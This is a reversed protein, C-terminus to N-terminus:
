AKQRPSKSPVILVPIDSQRLVNRVVRGAIARTWQARRRMGMVILDCAKHRAFSLIETAVDGEAVVVDEIITKPDADSPCAERFIRKLDDQIRLAEVKKNILIDRASQNKRAKLETYLGRGFSTAVREETGPALSQLVHLILITAGHRFASNMAYDFTYRADESLDSAFLIRSIGTRM